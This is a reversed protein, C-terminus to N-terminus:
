MASPDTVEIYTSSIVRAVVARTVKVAVTGADTEPLASVVAAAMVPLLKTAANFVNCDEFRAYEPNNAGAAVPIAIPPAVAATVTVAISSSTVVSSTTAAVTVVVTAIATATWAVAVTDDTVTAETEEETPLVTAAAVAVVVVLATAPVVVVAATPEVVAAVVVATLPAVAVVVVPATPPAVVVVVVVATPEVVAVVVVVDPLPAVADEAPLVTCVSFAGPPAALCLVESPCPLTPPLIMPRMDCTCNMCRQESPFIPTGAEVCSIDLPREMNLRCNLAGHDSVGFALVTVVEVAVVEVMAVERRIARSPAELVELVVLVVLVVVAYPEEESQV